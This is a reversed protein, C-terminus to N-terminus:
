RRSRARGSQFATPREVLYEWYRRPMNQAQLRPNHRERIAIERYFARWWEQVDEERASLRIEEPNAHDRLTWNRGDWGVALRRAVDHITWREGPMRRRFHQAVAASVNHDPAIPAWLRGDELERFRLLGKLRHIERSVSAAIENVARVDSHAHYSLVEAGRELAICIFRYLPMEAAVRDAMGVRVVRRAAEESVGKRIRALFASARASDTAISVPEGFLSLADNRATLSAPEEGLDTLAALATLLGEFTGDYIWTRM